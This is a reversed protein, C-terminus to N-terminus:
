PKESPEPSASECQDALRLLSELYPLGWWGFRRSLNWFRATAGSAIHALPNPDGPYSVTEEGVQVDLAMPQDDHTVPAIARCRGHHSAILHLLLDREPHKAATESAAVILTSLLEHRFGDPLEARNRLLRAIAPPRYGGSKALQRSPVLWPSCSHLLAQFRPDLKGLDHWLGADHLTTVIAPPMGSANSKARKAVQQSHLSLEVEHSATNGQRGSDQPDLPWKTYGTRSRNTFIVGRQGKGALPAVKWDTAPRPTMKVRDTYAAITWVEKLASDPLSKALHVAIQPITAQWAKESFPPVEGEGGGILPKLLDTLQHREVGLPLLSKLHDIMEAHFRLCLRDRSLLYAKEFQDLAWPDSEKKQDPLPLLKEIRETGLSSSIVLIDGNRIEDTRRIPFAERSRFIYVNELQRSVRGTKEQEVSQPVDGGPDVAKDPNELWTRVLNLPITAAETGIPPAAVINEKASDPADIDARIVLPIQPFSIGPGHIYVAPDPSVHPEPSTQCLLDLHPALLIPANTSPALLSTLIENEPLIREIAALGFDCAENSDLNAQLWKWVNPLCDGYLPDSQKESLAEEPAYIIAPAPINRGQRNLRGFRQRLSDLPALETQLADFDYDAGVEITQTAILILPPVDATPASEKLQHAKTLNEILKERDLPRIRGTLLSVAAKHHKKNAPSNLKTFLAEATAVRNVVILIRRNEGVLQLTDKTIEEALKTHRSSGKAGEIRKTTAPKSATYRRSIVPNEYDNAILAFPQPADTPPTATLQVCHFPRQIAEPAQARFHGISSLTQSFAKSTHAEDLILLSDNALLAAHIPRANASVGYGRFLLRSGLQDLTTTLVVPQTPTKAWSHDTFTGGRLPYTKLPSNDKLGSLERLAAAVPQLINEPDHIAESLKESIHRVREYAEDVVIRRNVAFVIRVPATRLDPPLAAQRALDYIAIDLVTTKGMGTPLTIWEPWQGDVLESALRTQWPFPNLEWLAKFYSPFDPFNKM